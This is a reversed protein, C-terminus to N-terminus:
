RKELDLLQARTHNAKEAHLTNPSQVQVMPLLSPPIADLLSMGAALTVNIVVPTPSPL